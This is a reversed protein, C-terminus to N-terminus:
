AEAEKNRPLSFYFTAGEDVKSEAWVKGGHKEIIRSVNALGVGTGEFERGSHLREFATFLKNYHQMDFGTGNDRVRYITDTDTTEADIEVMAIERNSSYKVANSILNDWVQTIASTDAFADPLRHLKFEIKRGTDHRSIEDCIGRVLVNMPILQKDLDLRGIRAFALLDDILRGMKNSNVVVRDLLMKQEPSLQGNSKDVFMNIFSNIKRLPARLDHSVSYSFSELEHNAQALETTRMEVKRELEQNFSIIEASQSEIQGLMNNFADTLTGLEDAGFKEARVGYDHGDSVKRSTNLLSLIPKSISRQFRDALITAIALSILLLSVSVVVLMRMRDRFATLSSRIYLTGLQKGSQMVPEFGDLYTTHFAYGLDSPQKPFMTDAASAKYSVFLKGDRDYLCATTISPQARFSALVEAAAEEDKFALAATSNTAIINAIIVIQKQSNRKVTIYEYVFFSIVTLCLAAGCILLIATVLKRKIPIDRFM